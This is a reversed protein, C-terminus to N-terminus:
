MNGFKLIMDITRNSYGCENDYWGVLKLMDGVKDTLQSDFICSHRNGIIDQSVLPDTSYEIIGKMSNESANRIADNVDDASADKNLKVTLDTLSGNPVPVRVAYGNLKGKLEPMVLGVAKAAGTTTPIANVAAARARRLDSHPLDLIRQDNTYAHVTTMFGHEIGFQDHLVKVMPALCNTTCSANSIIKMSSTLTNDNVGLVITADLEGKAPASLVVKGAGNDIHKQLGDRNRFVGTSDLVVDPAQWPISSPDKEASISIRKGNVIVADNEHSVEGQFRGHVSDFKILHALTAANTLDNIGIIEIDENRNHIERFVLRGIRGFGNIALKLSM